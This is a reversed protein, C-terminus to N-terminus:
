YPEIIGSVVAERVVRFSIEVHKKSLYAAPNQANLIFSLNDGFIRTLYSGDLPVNCGLCRLM